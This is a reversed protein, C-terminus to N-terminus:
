LNDKRQNIKEGDKVSFEAATKKVPISSQASLDISQNDDKIFAATGKSKNFTARIIEFLEWIGKLIAAILGLAAVILFFLVKADPSKKRRAM